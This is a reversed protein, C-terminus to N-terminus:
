VLVRAHRKQITWQCGASHAPITHDDTDRATRMWDELTPAGEAQGVEQEPRPSSGPLPNRAQAAPQAGITIAAGEVDMAAPATDSSGSKPPEPAIAVVAAQRTPREASVWSWGPLAEFDAQVKIYFHQQRKESHDNVKARQPGGHITLLLM